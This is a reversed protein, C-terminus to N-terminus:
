IVFFFESNWNELVPSKPLLNPLVNCAFKSMWELKEKQMNTKLIKRRQTTELDTKRLQRNEWSKILDLSATAFLIKTWTPTLTLGSNLSLLFHHYLPPFSKPCSHILYIGLIRELDLDTLHVCLNSRNKKDKIFLTKNAKSKEAKVTFAWYFPM